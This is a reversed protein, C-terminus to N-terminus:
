QLQRGKQEEVLIGIFAGFPLRSFSLREELWLRAAFFLKSDLLPLFLVSRWRLKLGNGLLHKIDKLTYFRAQEWIDKGSKKRKRALLSNRNLIGLFVRGRSVRFAEKLAKAPSSIFELTTIMATLDFSGDPFPLEYADGSNFHLEMGKSADRATKLMEYSTDLGTVKTGLEKFYRTFHGTGCGIELVRDDQKVACLSSIVKKELLDVFVGKPSSYWNEYRETETSM